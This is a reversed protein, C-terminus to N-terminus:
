AAKTDAERAGTEIEMGEPMWAAARARQEAKLPPVTKEGSFILALWEVKEGKKMNAFRAPTEGMIHTAIEDLQPGKLRKFFGATPTWVKRVDAGVMAAILEAFPNAREGCLGVGVLKAVNETLIANRAKKPKARFHAFAEAAEEGGLPSAYEGAGIRDDVSLGDDDEPQNQADTSNLGMPLVGSWVPEALAFTLLDLAMEPKSLLATQVACTRVRRLDDELKASYPGKKEASSSASRYPASCVGAAVAADRDEPRVNGYSLSLKGNYGISVFVGAHAKQDDTFTEASLKEELAEFEAEEEPTADEMEIKDALEDYREAEGDEAEVRQPYTRGYHQTVDYPQGEFSVETWAWGEAEVGEAAKELQKMALDALLEPDDFYVEAGFLDETVHGGEAEYRARGVFKALRSDGETSEAMLQNRITRENDEQWTGKLRTFVEVAREPDDTVTYAAAVDLTIENARLAELILDPLKALKMRGAVHRVTVGFAKAIQPVPAGQAEMAAYARVEDAPHLAERAVNEASAWGQAEAEDTTVIVPVMTNAPDTESDAAVKRLARLRRGGAVIEIGSKTEFGALSQILGIAAISEALAAVSEDAADQRPNLPSLTLESLAVMRPTRDDKPTAKAKTM